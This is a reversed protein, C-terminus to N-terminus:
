SVQEFAGAKSCVTKSAGAEKVLTSAPAELANRESALAGSRSNFADSWVPDGIIACGSLISSAVRRSFASRYAGCKHHILLVSDTSVLRRHM